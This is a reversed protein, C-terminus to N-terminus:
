SRPSPSSRALAWPSASSPRAGAPGVGMPAAYPMGPQGPGMPPQGGSQAPPGWAPTPPAQQEWQSSATPPAPPTAPAPPAAPAPVPTPTGIVETHHEGAGSEPDPTADPQDAM